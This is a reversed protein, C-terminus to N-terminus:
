PPALLPYPNIATAAEWWKREPRTSMVAFHLHPAAPNANGSYGVTGIPTGQQLWSGEALTQAYRDLHAYYYITHGDPSRQYVTNGGAQSVFLKDVRGTAAAIVATGLPATIDIADHRRGNARADSFTDTLQQARIGQVPVILRQSPSPVAPPPSPAAWRTEKFHAQQQMGILQDASNDAKLSPGPDAATQDATLGADHQMRGDKSVEVDCASVLLAFSLAVIASRM